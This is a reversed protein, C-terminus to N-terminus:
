GNIEEDSALDQIRVDLAVQVPRGRVLPGTTVTGKVVADAGLSKAIRQLDPDSFNNPQGPVSPTRIGLTQAERQVESTQFVYFKGQGANILENYVAATANVGLLQGGNPSKNVID